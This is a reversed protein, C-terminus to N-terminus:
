PSNVSNIQGIPHIPMLWIVNVSLDKLHDLRDIVGQLDGEQSFARLNVEYMIIDSAEPVVFDPVDPITDAPDEPNDPPSSDNKECATFLVLGTIILFLFYRFHM